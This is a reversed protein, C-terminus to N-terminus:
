RQFREIPGMFSAIPQILALTKALTDVLQDSFNKDRCSWKFAVVSPIRALGVVVPPGGQTDLRDVLVVNNSDLPVKVTHVWAVRAKTDFQLFLTDITAGSLFEPAGPRVPPVLQQRTGGFGRWGPQARGIIIGDVYLSDNKTTLSFTAAARATLMTVGGIACASMPVDGDGPQQADIREALTLIGTLLFLGILRNM